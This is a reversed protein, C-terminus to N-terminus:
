PVVVVPCPPNAIVKDSVSGLLLGKVQGLGRTGIVIMEAREQAAAAIIEMAVGGREVRERYPVQEGIVDRGVALARREADRQADDPDVDEAADIDRGEHVYLLVITAGVEAALKAAFACGRASGESGDVPVLFTRPATM